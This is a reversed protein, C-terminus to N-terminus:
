IPAGNHSTCILDPLFSLCHDLVLVILVWIGNEFGFPPFASVCISSRERFVRVYFRM